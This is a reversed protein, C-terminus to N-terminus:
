HLQALKRITSVVQLLEVMYVMQQENGSFITNCTHTFKVTYYVNYKPKRAHINSEHM